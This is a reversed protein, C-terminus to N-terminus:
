GPRPEQQGQRVGEQFALFSPYANVEDSMFVEYVYTCGGPYQKRQERGSTSTCPLNM